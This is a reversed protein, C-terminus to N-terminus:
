TPPDPVIPPVREPGAEAPRPRDAPHLRVAALAVDDQPREPLMRELLRDCLDDVGLTKLEDVSTLLRRLGDDLSQGRQEVLGDTYLLVTAPRELTVEHECRPTTHDIGLLLDPDEDVALLRVAGQRDIVVPPPHGANSWRLRTVDKRREDPTQEFRAIVVTATTDVQLLQMARDLRSLVAAPGEGTTAAIGRLLGRVQGMAAAADVDHGVVDGIVLVTSGDDQMFADYWDGGVAAAQAAPEYRVVVQMHNPEPPATLLSRQLGEALRRQDDYRKANDLALGARGALEFLTDLDVPRLEELDRSFVTLAGLTRGRARMPQIVGSRPALRRLLERVHGDELKAAIARTADQIIVAQGRRLAQPLFADDRLAAIREAAYQELVERLDPDVHWSALDRLQRRWDAPDAEHDLVTVICFDGLAPVVIRALRAVAEQPDLTETLESTARALLTMRELAARRATVDLFYVSLGDPAPWVRLEFWGNLPAPYYAEFTTPEGTAMAQRYHREFESGLAAPFLQWIEGGLLESRTRGLLREAEANVYSFRWERDLAYFAASMSELVRTTRAEGARVATTDYAAGLVRVARGHPDCLARGRAQVWRTGDPLLVRYESEYTGCTDIAGQLAALVRPLDDPHVRANFAEMTEDFSARTYGFLELLRDDWVLVGKTLDLDFTGVGAADVALEWLARRAAGAETRAERPSPDPSSSAPDTRDV